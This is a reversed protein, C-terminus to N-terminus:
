GTFWSAIFTVLAEIVARVLREIITGRSVFAIVAAVIAAGVGGVLAYELTQSGREGDDRLRDLRRQLRDAGDAVGDRLDAGAMSARVAVARATDPLTTHM